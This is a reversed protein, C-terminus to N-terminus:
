YVRNGKLLIMVILFYGFLIFSDRYSWSTKAYSSRIYPAEAARTIASASLQEASRIMGYMIPVLLVDFLLLINSKLAHITLIRRNKIAQFVLKMQYRYTSFFRISVLIALIM